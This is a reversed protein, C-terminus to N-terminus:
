RTAPLNQADGFDVPFTSDRDSCLVAGNYVVRLHITGGVRAVHVDAVATNAVISRVQVGVRKLDGDSEAELCGVIGRDFVWWRAFLRLGLKGGRVDRLVEVYEEKPEDLDAPKVGEELTAWAFHPIGGLDVCGAIQKLSADHQNNSWKGGFSIFEDSGVAVGNVRLRAVAGRFDGGRVPSREGLKYVLPKQEIIADIIQDAEAGGAVCRLWPAIAVYANVCLAGFGLAIWPWKTLLVSKM